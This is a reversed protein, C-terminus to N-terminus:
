NQPYPGCDFGEEDENWKADSLRDCGCSFGSGRHPFHEHWTTSIRTGARRQAASAVSAPPPPTRARRSGGARCPAGDGARSRWWWLKNGSATSSSHTKGRATFAALQCVIPRCCSQLLSCQEFHHQCRYRQGLKLYSMCCCLCPSPSWTGLAAMALKPILICVHSGEIMECCSIICIRVKICPLLGATGSIRKGPLWMWALGM